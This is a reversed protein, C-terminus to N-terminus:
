GSATHVESGERARESATMGDMGANCHNYLWAAHEILWPVAPSTPSLTENLREELADKLTRAQDEIDRNAREVERNSQHEAVPSNELLTEKGRRIRVRDHLALTAPEQDTKFILKGYSLSDLDRCVVSVVYDSYVERSTSKGQM